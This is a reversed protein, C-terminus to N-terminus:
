PALLARVPAFNRRHIPSVGHLRLAQLHDPTPYGKHRDFGYEPYDRHLALMHRDRSVKALISAAMISPHSADGGIIASAPCPLDDPLRNGDILAMGAQPKLALLCQRMGFLSAQLINLREIAAVDVEVVAYALAQTCIAEFLSERRSASLKKSDDLGAIPHNEPLIVAACVVPGALPGRGAEDVGAILM